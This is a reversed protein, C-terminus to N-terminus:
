NNSPPLSLTGNPTYQGAATYGGLVCTTRLECTHGKGILFQSMVDMYTRVYTRVYWPVYARVHVQYQWVLWNVYWPVLAYM